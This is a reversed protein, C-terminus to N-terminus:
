AFLIKSISICSCEHVTRNTHIRNRPMGTQEKFITALPYKNKTKWLSVSFAPFDKLVDFAYLKHLLIMDTDKIIQPYPAPLKNIHWCEIPSTKQIVCNAKVDGSDSGPVWNPSRLFTSSPTLSM